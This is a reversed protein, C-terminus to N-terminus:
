KATDSTAGCVYLLISQGPSDDGLSDYVAKEEPISAAEVVEGSAEAGAYRILQVAASTRAACDYIALTKESLYTRKPDVSDTDVPRGHVWKLWVRVKPGSRKLSQTDVYVNILEGGGVKVWRPPQASVAASLMAMALLAIIRAKRM